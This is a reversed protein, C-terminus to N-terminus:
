KKLNAVTRKLDEIIKDVEVELADVEVGAEDGMNNSIIVGLKERVRALKYRAYDGEIAPKSYQRALTLSTEDDAMVDEFVYSTVMSVRRYNTAPMAAHSLVSGKLLYAYGAAPFELKLVDGAATKVFTEGGEANSPVDALMVILVLPQSDTHWNFVPTSSSLSGTPPSAVNVHAREVGMPHPRLPASAVKSLFATLEESNFLSDLFPSHATANRITHPALPPTFHHAHEPICEIANRVAALLSPTFLQFPATAGFSGPADHGFFELDYTTIDPPPNAASLM